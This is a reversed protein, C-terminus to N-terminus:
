VRFRLGRVGVRLGVRVEAKGMIYGMFRGSPTEAVEFYEPWRVLYQMYFALNYQSGRGCPATVRPAAVRLEGKEGCRM